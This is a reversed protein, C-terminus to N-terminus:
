MWFSTSSSPNWVCSTLPMGDKQAAPMYVPLLQKGALEPVAAAAIQYAVTERPEKGPLAIVENEKILKVAKLTMLDPEGPGVGVGYLIGDM